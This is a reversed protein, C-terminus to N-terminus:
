GSSAAIMWVNAGEAHRPPVPDVRSTVNVGRGACEYSFEESFRLQDEEHLRALLVRPGEASGSPGSGSSVASESRHASSEFVCRALLLLDATERLALASQNYRASADSVRVTKLRASLAVLQERIEREGRPEGDLRAARNMLESLQTQLGFITAESEGRGRAEALLADCREAARKEAREFLSVPLDFASRTLAERYAAMGSAALTGAVSCASLVNGSLAGGGHYQYEVDGAAYLGPVSTAHNRPSDALIHGDGDSEYDVWVGGRLGTVAPCVPVAVERLDSRAYTRCLDWIGKLHHEFQESDVQTLDLYAVGRQTAWTDEIMPLRRERALTVLRHALAAGPQLVGPETEPAEFLYEREIEPIDRPLRRDRPKKPVWLRGGAARAAAGIPRLMEGEALATPEISLLDANAFVAGHRLAVAAGAVTSGLGACAGFLVGTGGTALCVADGVFAKVKGTGLEQAVVGIVAGRDDKALDVLDWGILKEITREGAVLLGRSDHLDQSARRLVQEALVRVVHQGTVTGACYTHRGLPGEGGRRELGGDRAREFPVGAACLEDVIGPARRVLEAVPPQHAFYGGAALTQALHEQADREQECATIGDQRAVSLARREENRSLLLVPIGADALRTAATLGAVGGGVVIARRIKGRESRMSTAM